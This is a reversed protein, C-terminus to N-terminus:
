SRMRNGAEAARVREKVEENAQNPLPAYVRLMNEASAM